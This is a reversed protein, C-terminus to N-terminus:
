AKFADNATKFNTRRDAYTTTKRNIVQTISDVNADTKGRDALHQLGNMIWYCVASRVDYPFDVMKDPDAVFDVAGGYLKGYQATVALYNARGTVQILGRGRFKWGDGSASDGNGNKSAYAKNAIKEEAAHHTIKRSKADREYADDKAETPHGQYYGFLKKLTDESYNLSEVTATLAPGGEQLTQAFFHACRLRSDLGYKPLDTNLEDAVQKMYEKSASPFIKLLQEATLKWTPSAAQPAQQGAPLSLPSGDSARVLPGSVNREGGKLWPLTPDAYDQFGLAGPSDGLLTCM